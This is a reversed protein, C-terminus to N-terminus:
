LGAFMWKYEFLNNIHYACALVQPLHRSAARGYWPVPLAAQPGIATQNSATPFTM